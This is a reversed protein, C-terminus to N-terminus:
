STTSRRAPRWPSSRASPTSCRSRATSSSARRRLGRRPRLQSGQAQPRGRAGGPLAYGRGVFMFGRSNVYRRALAAAIPPTSSSRGSPARRAAGAARRGLETERRTPWAHRAGQRDRRRPDGPDDGPDRVDEVRRGRDGPRGAPVPGRRGRPHDGLRGHQHGRHDPLGARPRPPDPRDHRGDRRVPDRRHRADRADLPPPSYRFESGVTARAPLGTWDQLAAAGILAAYYATGCAVLEIRRSRRRATARSRGARRRRDTRRPEGPRRDVPAAGDAARPDGQAHLPRLRGERRGRADLDITTVAASSRGATSTPSRSAGRGSTPSTARRSSSRGPRHPRPDGRRRQRPVDRRRRPRRRAAREQARRRAPRPEGRHM